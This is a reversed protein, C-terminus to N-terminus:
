ELIQEFFHREENLDIEPAKIALLELIAINKKAFRKYAEDEPHFPKHEMAKRIQQVQRVIEKTSKTFCTDSFYNWIYRQAIASPHVMDEAYFRYDRLDDMLLEYSPFYFVHDFSECLGEIALHLTSKSLTNEHVGDKMHRIPSVTFLVKLDPKAQLLMELLEIYFYEIENVTLRRRLFYEEPMKHCNAVIQDTSPLTYVWSTGFTIILCTADKLDVVAQNFATNIKELTSKPDTGSFSSHHSFSHYFCDHEVLEEKRFPQNQLLRHLATGVSAPNYLVGFPNLSVQFGSEKLMLGINEAFCSGLIMMKDTHALHFDSIQLPIATRFEM